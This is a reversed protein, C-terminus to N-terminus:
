EYGRNGLIPRLGLICGSLHLQSWMGSYFRGVTAPQSVTGMDGLVAGGSIRFGRSEAYLWPHERTNSGEQCHTLLFLVKVPSSVSDQPFSNTRVEQALYSGLLCGLQAEFVEVSPGAPRHAAGLHGTDAAPSFGLALPLGKLLVAKCVLLVSRSNCGCVHLPRGEVRATHV